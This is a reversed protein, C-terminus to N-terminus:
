TAPQNKTLVHSGPRGDTVDGTPVRRLTSLASALRRADAEARHRLPEGAAVTSHEPLGKVDGLKREGFPVGAADSLMTLWHRDFDVEDSYLDRDGVAELFREVAERPAVGARDLMERTIGTLRESAPIWANTFTAM